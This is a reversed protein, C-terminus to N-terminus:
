DWKQSHAVQKVIKDHRHHRERTYKQKTNIYWRLNTCPVGRMPGVAFGKQSPAVVM